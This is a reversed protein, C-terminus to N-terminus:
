QGVEAEPSQRRALAGYLGQAFATAEGDGVSGEWGLVAPVAARVLASALSDSVTEGARGAATNLCASLMVFGSRREGPSEEKCFAILGAHNRTHRELHLERYTDAYAPM